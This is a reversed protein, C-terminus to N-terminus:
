CIKVIYRMMVIQIITIYRKIDSIILVYILLRTSFRIRNSLVDHVIMFGVYVDVIECIVISSIAEDM